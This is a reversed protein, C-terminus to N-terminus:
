SPVFFVFYREFFIKTDKTDEHHQTECGAGSSVEFESSACPSRPRRGPRGHLSGDGDHAASDAPGKGRTPECRRTEYAREGSLAHGVAGNGEHCSYEYLQYGPQQTITFRMTFPATYMVPDEVRVRYDIM